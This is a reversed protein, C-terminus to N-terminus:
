PSKSEGVVIIFVTKKVYM